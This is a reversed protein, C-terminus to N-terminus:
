ERKLTSYGILFGIGKATAAYEAKGDRVSGFILREKKLEKIIAEVSALDKGLMTALGEKTMAREKLASLANKIEVKDIM